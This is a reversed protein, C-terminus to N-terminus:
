CDRLRRELSGLGGGASEDKAEGGGENKDGGADNELDVALGGARGAGGDGGSFLLDGVEVGFDGAEGGFVGGDKLVGAEAFFEVLGGRAAGLELELFGVEFM